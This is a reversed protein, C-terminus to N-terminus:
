VSRPVRVLPLIRVFSGQVTGPPVVWYGGRPIGGDAGNSRAYWGRLAGPRALFLLAAVLTTLAATALGTM